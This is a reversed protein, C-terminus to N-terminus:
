LAKVLNCPDFVNIYDVCIYNPVVFNVSKAFRCNHIAKGAQERVRARRMGWYSHKLIKRAAVNTEGLYADRARIESEPVQRQQSTRSSATEFHITSSARLVAEEIPAWGPGM